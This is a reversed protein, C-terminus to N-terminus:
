PVTDLAETKARRIATRQKFSEYLFISAACSVNLSSASGAMPICATIDAGDRYSKSLGTTENGLLLITPRTFDVQTIPRSGKEDAAVVQPNIGAELLQKKWAFVEKASPVRVAPLAFLSGTSARVVVPDYLDVAHGTIIVGTVGLADCSRLSSGLNGPSGPRDFVVVLMNSSQVLRALDDEPCAVIAILESTEEKDSIEAMLEPALEFHRPATAQDLVGKAWDSLRRKAPYLLARIEWGFKLAANLSRVGEVIFERYRTRKERNRVLVEFHQFHNDRSQIKILQAAM